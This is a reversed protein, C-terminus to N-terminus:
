FLGWLSSVWRRWGCRWGAWVGRGEEKNSLSISVMASYRHLCLLTPRRRRV